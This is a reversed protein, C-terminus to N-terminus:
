AMMKCFYIITRYFTSFIYLNENNNGMILSQDSNERVDDFFSKGCHICPGSTSPTLITSM